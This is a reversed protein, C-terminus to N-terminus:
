LVNDLFARTRPDRPAGFIERPTGEEVIRGGDTFYVRDAIERAFAMEHTVLICTMDDSALDRIVNLVEKVTQPDLAATVEDFMMVEPQM